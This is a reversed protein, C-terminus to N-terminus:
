PISQDPLTDLSWGRLNLICKGCFHPAYVGVEHWSRESSNSSYSMLCNEDSLDHLESNDSGKDFVPIAFHGVNQHHLLWACHALEHAVVYYNYDPDESNIWTFAGPRGRSVGVTAYEVPGSSPSPPRVTSGVINALIYGGPTGTRPSPAGPLSQSRRLKEHLIDELAEYTDDFFEGALEDLISTNSPFLPSIKHKATLIGDSSLTLADVDWDTTAAVADLFEKSTMVDQPALRDINSIDLQVFARHFEEAVQNLEASTPSKPWEIIAAISNSRWIRFVGTSNTTLSSHRQKFTDPSPATDALVTAHIRYADGAIYSPSFIFGGRGIRKKYDPGTYTRVMLKHEAASPESRYPPYPRDLSELAQWIALGRLGGASIPCNDGGTGGGDTALSKDIYRKPFCHQSPDDHHVTTNEQVDEVECEILVEGVALPADVPNNSKSRLRVIVEVPLIPRTLREAEYESRADDAFEDGSELREHTLLEVLIKTEKAPDVFADGIPEGMRTAAAADLPSPTTVLWDRSAESNALATVLAGDIESSYEEYAPKWLDPHNRRYRLIAKKLDEDEEDKIVGAHYGLENLWFKCWAAIHEPEQGTEDYEATWPGRAFTLSHYLVDFELDTTQKDAGSGDDYVIRLHYPTYLPNIYEGQLPGSPPNAKGDWGIFSPGSASLEAPTLERAFLPETGHVDSYVELRASVPPAAPDIAIGIDLMEVSPAFVPDVFFLDVGGSPPPTVPAPPQVPAPGGGGGGGGSPPKVPPPTFPGPTFAVPVARFNPEAYISQGAHSEKALQPPVARPFVLVDVRQPSSPDFDHMPADASDWGPQCVMHAPTMWALADFASALADTSRGLSEALSSFLLQAATGWDAADFRQPDLGPSGAAARFQQLAATTEPTVEAAAFGPDCALGHESAAWRLMHHWDEPVQTAVCRGAWDDRQLFARLNDARAKALNHSRDGGIGPHGAVLLHADPAEEFREIVRALGPIGGEPLLIAGRNGFFPLEAPFEVIPIPCREVVVRVAEDVPVEVKGLAADEWSVRIERRSM